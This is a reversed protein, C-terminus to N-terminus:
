EGRMNLRAELMEIKNTLNTLAVTNNQVCKTLNGVEERHRENTKNIYWAMYVCCFIPFGLTSILSSIAEFDLAVM